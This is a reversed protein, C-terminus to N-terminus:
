CTVAVHLRRNRDCSFRAPLGPATSEDLLSLLVHGAVEACQPVVANGLARLAERRFRRDMPVNLELPRGEAPSGSLGDQTTSRDLRGASDGTVVADTLSLGPKAKSTATNRSGGGAADTATPTPWGTAWTELSPNKKTAYGDRGDCPDGNQGSGYRQATPTPYEGRSWSSGRGATRRGLTRLKSRSRYRRM